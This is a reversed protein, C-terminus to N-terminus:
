QNDEDETAGENRYRAKVYECYHVMEAIATKPLDDNTTRLYGELTPLDDLTLHGAAALFDALPKGYLKAAAHLVHVGPNTYFGRELRSLYSPTVGMRAAAQKQSLDAALRATVFLEALPSQIRPLSSHDEDQM